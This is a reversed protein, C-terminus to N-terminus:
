RNRRKIVKGVVRWGLLSLLVFVAFILLYFQTYNFTPKVITVVLNDDNFYARTVNQIDQLSVKEISDEYNEYKGFRNLEEANMAYYGAFSSNSEYGRAVGLLIKRKVTDLRSQDLNGDKFQTITAKILEINRDVDDVDSDTELVFAGYDNHSYMYGTPDYAMGEEIRLRNYLETQFYSELVTLAYYDPSYIGSTRYLLHVSAESSVIPQWRGEIVENVSQFPGPLPRRKIGDLSVKPITGLTKEVLVRAKDIDIDGVLVLTMNGAVYYSKYAKMIEEHTITAANDKTKCQYEIGPFVLNLARDSADVIVDNEFLWSRLASSKGGDERYIIKRSKEVNEPTITSRTIIEDLTELAVDVHKSYIDIYYLTYDQGTEANWSGGHSEIVEHLEAESHQETGTFLLHELFHATERKGCPFNMHGIDVILQISVNRANHRPKIVVQLGNPLRYHEVEYFGPQSYESAILLESFLTFLLFVFLVLPSSRIM